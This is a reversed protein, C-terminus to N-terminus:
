CLRIVLPDGPLHCAFYSEPFRFHPTWPNYPRIDYLTAGAYLDNPGGWDSM